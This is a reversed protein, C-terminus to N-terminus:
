RGDTFDELKDRHDEILSLVALGVVIMGLVFTVLALWLPASPTTSIIYTLGFFLLALFLIIATVLRM